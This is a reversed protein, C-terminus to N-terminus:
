WLAKDYIILKKSIKISFRFINYNIRYDNKYFLLQIHTEFIISKNRVSMRFRVAFNGRLHLRAQLSEADGL